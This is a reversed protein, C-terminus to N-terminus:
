GTYIYNFVGVLGIPEPDFPVSNGGSDYLTSSGYYPLAVDTFSSSSATTNDVYM